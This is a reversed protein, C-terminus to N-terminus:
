LMIQPFCREIWERVCADGGNRELVIDVRNKVSEVADAPCATFGAKDMIDLDNIDDGIYAVEGYSINEESCWEELVELKPRDGTYVRPINLLKARRQIMKRNIGHSIIGTIIGAAALRRIALGDKSNFKKLEDGSETYYMGADTLVGDVDFLVMKLPQIPLEKGLDVRIMREISIGCIDSVSLLLDPSIIESGSIDVRGSDLLEKLRPYRTALLNINKTLFSM